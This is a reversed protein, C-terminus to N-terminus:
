RRTLFVGNPALVMKITRWHRCRSLASPRPALPEFDHEFVLAKCMFNRSGRCTRLLPIRARASGRARLLTASPEIVRSLRGWQFDVGNQYKGWRKCRPMAVPGTHWLNLDFELIMAPLLKPQPERQLDPTFLPNARASGGACLRTASPKIVRSLRGLPFDVCNQYGCTSADLCPPPAPPGATRILSSSCQM